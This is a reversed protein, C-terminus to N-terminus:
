VGCSYFGFLISKLIICKFTRIKNHPHPIQGLLDWIKPDELGMRFVSIGRLHYKNVLKLKESFTKDNEVFLYEYLYNKQFIAYSVKQFDDWELSISLKKLLNQADFFSLDKLVVGLGERGIRGTRWYFSYTPIGLSLKQPSIYQLTHQIAAEVWTISANPGPTTGQQHQEYTMLSVFDVINNMQKLDYAGAWNEYTRKLFATEDPNNTTFPFVAASILFGNQHLAQALKRYFQTLATRDKISVGEFDVQVGYYHYKKSDDVISQVVKDVSANNSLFKHAVSDDYDKNTIMPMIKINNKEAFSLLLPNVHGLIKGNENIQYALPALINIANKHKELYHFVAIEAASLTEDGRFIYFLNEQSISSICFLLSFLLTFFVILSKM